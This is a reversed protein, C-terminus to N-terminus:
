QELNITQAQCVPTMENLGDWWMVKATAANPVAGADISSAADFTKLELMNGKEAYFAVFIKGSATQGELSISQGSVIVSVNFAPDTQIYGNTIVPEVAALNGDVIDGPKYSLSINYKGAGNPVKFTLIAIIGNSTDADTGDWILNFPMLSLSGPKTMALTSLAEGKTIKTLTLDSDYDVSITAGCIGTNGSVRIPVDVSSGSDSTVADVSININDEQEPPEDGQGEDGVTVSGNQLPIEVPLLMGDVVDGDDYSINIYFTGDENPLSFTLYAIIGDTTDAETGDWVIKIPNSSLTGPKTMTLSALAEGKEIDTLVMKESYAVKLTVGCIGTNGSISIPVRVSEGAQASVQGVTIAPTASVQIQATPIILLAISILISFITKKNIM